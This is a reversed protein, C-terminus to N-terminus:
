TPLLKPLAECLAQYDSLLNYPAVSIRLTRQPWAPWASVPVQIRHDRVLRRQLPDMELALPQPGEGPPLVFSRMWAPSDNASRLPQLVAGLLEEAQRRLAIMESRLEAFGGPYLSALTELATPICFWPTPDFTGPWDFQEALTAIRGEPRYGHSTIAPQLWSHASPKAYIFAAGKPACCWKHLNGIYIDPDLRSLDLDLMGPGHAGDVLSVVGREQCREILQAIPLVLATASSVHDILALRTRSSLQASMAAVMEEDSQNPDLTVHRLTLGFRKATLMAAKSCAPYNVNTLLLEDGAQWPFSSFVGNVGETTNRLFAINEPGTRFFAAAATRAKELYLPSAELFFAVPERELEDRLRQQEAQVARPCAGFSGHNLFHVDPHLSWRARMTQDRMTSPQTQQLEQM